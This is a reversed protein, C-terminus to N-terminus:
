RGADDGGVLAALHRLRRAHMSEIGVLTGDDILLTMRVTAGHRTVGVQAVRALPFWGRHHGPRARLFRPRWVHIRRHDSVGIIMDGGGYPFGCAEAASAWAAIAERRVRAPRVSFAGRTSSGASGAFSVPMWMLLREGTDLGEIEM